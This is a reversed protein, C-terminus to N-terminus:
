HKHTTQTLPASDRFYSAKAQFTMQCGSLYLQTTAVCVHVCVIWWRRSGEVKHQAEIRNEKEKEDGRRGGGTRM